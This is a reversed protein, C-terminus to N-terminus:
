PRGFVKINTICTMDDNQDFAGLYHVYHFIHLYSNGIEFQDRMKDRTYDWSKINTLKWGSEILIEKAEGALVCRGIKWNGFIDPSWEMTFISFPGDGGPGKYNATTALIGM